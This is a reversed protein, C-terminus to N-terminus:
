ADTFYIRVTYQVEHDGATRNVQTILLGNDVATSGTGGYKVVMGNRFKQTVRIVSRQAGTIHYGKWFKWETFRTNTSSDLLMSGEASTFDSITPISTNHQQILHNDLTGDVSGRIEVRWVRIRDGSREAITDGQAIDTLAGVNVTGATVTGSFTFTKHKMEPRNLRTSREVMRLRKAIQRGEDPTIHYTRKLGRM